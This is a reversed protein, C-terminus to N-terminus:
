GSEPTYQNQHYPLALPLRPLIIEYMLLFQQHNVIMEEQNSYYNNAQNTSISSPLILSFFQCVSLQSMKLAM